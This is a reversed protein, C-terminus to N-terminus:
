IHQFIISIAIYSLGKYPMNFVTTHLQEIYTSIIKHTISNMNFVVIITMMRRPMCSQWM